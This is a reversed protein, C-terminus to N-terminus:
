HLAATQQKAVESRYQPKKKLFTLKTIGELSQSKKSKHRLSLIFIYVKMNSRENRM